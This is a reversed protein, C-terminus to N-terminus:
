ACCEIHHVAYRNPALDGEGLPELTLPDVGHDSIQRLIASLEYCHGSPTIVPTRPVALSIPCREVSAPFEHDPVKDLVERILAADVGRFRVRRYPAPRPAPPRPALPHAAAGAAAPPQPAVAAHAAGAPRQAVDANQANLRRLAWPRLSNRDGLAHLFVLFADLVGELGGSPASAEFMQMIQMNGENILQIKRQEARRIRIIVWLIILEPPDALAGRRTQQHWCREPFLDEVETRM